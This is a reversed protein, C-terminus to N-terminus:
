SDVHPAPTTSIAQAVEDPMHALDVRRGLLHLSLALSQSVSAPIGTCAPTPM